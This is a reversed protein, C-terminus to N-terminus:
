GMIYSNNNGVSNLTPSTTLGLASANNFHIRANIEAKVDCVTNGGGVFSNNANTGIYGDEAAYWGVGTNNRSICGQNISVVAKGFAVIGNLGNNEVVGGGTIGLFEVSSNDVSLLGAQTNRSSYFQDKITWISSNAVRLGQKGCWSSGISTSIVASNYNARFGDEGCRHAWCNEIRAGAAGLGHDWDGMLMGHQGSTGTGIFAVNRILGLLGQKVYLGAYSAASVVIRAGWISRVASEAGNATSQNMTGSSPFYIDPGIIQIRDLNPHAAIVPDPYDQAALLIRVIVNNPIALPALYDFAAQITPYQGPVNMNFYGTDLGPSQQVRTLLIIAQTLQTLDNGSPTLGAAEIVNVIEEQPHKYIVAPPISGEVGGAVNDDVWALNIDPQHTTENYPGIREM